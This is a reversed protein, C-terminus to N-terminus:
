LSELTFSARSYERFWKNDVAAMAEAVLLNVPSESSHSVGM